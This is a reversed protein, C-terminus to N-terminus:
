DDMLNPDQLNNVHFGSSVDVQARTADNLRAAKVWGNWAGNFSVFGAANRLTELSHTLLKSHRTDLRFRYAGTGLETDGHLVDAAGSWSVGSVVQGTTGVPIVATIFARQQYLTNINAGAVQLETTANITPATLTGAFTPDTSPAAAGTAGQAGQSGQAGTAGQAGVNGQAGTAGQAGVNGQAGTPGINGQAGQAGTPGPTLQINRSKIRCIAILSIGM